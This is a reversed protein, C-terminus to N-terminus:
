NFGIEKRGGACGTSAGRKAGHITKNEGKKKQQNKGGQEEPAGPKAEKKRKKGLWPMRKPEGGGGWFSRRRNARRVVGIVTWLRKARTLNSGPDFKRMPVGGFTEARTKHAV